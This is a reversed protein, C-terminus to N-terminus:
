FFDKETYDGHGGYEGHYFFYLLGNYIILIFVLLYGGFILFFADLYPFVFKM